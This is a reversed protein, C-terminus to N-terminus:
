TDRVQQQFEPLLTTPRKLIWSPDGRLDDAERHNMANLVPTEDIHVCRTRKILAGSQLVTYLGTEINNGVLIGCAARPARLKGGLKTRAKENIHPWAYSGFARIGTVDPLTGHFLFYPSQWTGTRKTPLISRLRAAELLAIEWCTKSLQATRILARTDGYLTQISREVPGNTAHDYELADKQYINADNLAQLCESSHTETAMDGRLRTIEALKGKTRAIHKKLVTPIESKSRMGYIWFTGSHRDVFHCAYKAGTGKGGVRFPGAIDWFQHSGPSTETAPRPGRQLPRAQSKAIACPECITIPSAHQTKAGTPPARLGTVHNHLEMCCPMGAHTFRAHLLAAYNDKSLTSPKASDGTSDTHEFIKDPADGAKAEAVPPTTDGTESHAAYIENAGNSTIGAPAPKGMDCVTAIFLGQKHTQDFVIPEDEGPLWVRLTDAHSDLTAGPIMRHFHSWSLINRSGAHSHTNILGLSIPSGDQATFTMSAKGSGDTATLTPSIGRVKVPKGTLTKSFYDPAFM